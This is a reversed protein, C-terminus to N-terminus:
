AVLHDLPSLWLGRCIRRKPWVIAELLYRCHDEDQFVKVMDPVTTIRSLVERVSLDMSLERDVM